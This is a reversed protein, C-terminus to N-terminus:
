TLVKQILKFQHESIAELFDKSKKLENRFEPFRMLFLYYFLDLVKTETEYICFIEKCDIYAIQYQDDMFHYATYKSQKHDCHVKKHIKDYEIIMKKEINHNLKLKKLLRIGRYEGNDVLKELVKTREIFDSNPNQIDVYYSQIIFELIYRINHYANKYLGCATLFVTAPLNRFLELYCTYLLSQSYKEKVYRTEDLLLISKMLAIQTQAPVLLIRNLKKLDNCRSETESATKMYEDFKISWNDSWKSTDPIKM